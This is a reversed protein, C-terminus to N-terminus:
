YDLRLTAVSTNLGSEDLSIADIVGSAGQTVLLFLNYRATLVVRSGPLVAFAPLSLSFPLSTQLKGSESKDGGWGSLFVEPRSVFTSFTASPPSTAPVGPLWHDARLLLNLILRAHPVAHYWPFIYTANPALLSYTANAEFHVTPTCVAGIGPSFSFVHFSNVLVSAMETLYGLQSSVAAAFRARNRSNV